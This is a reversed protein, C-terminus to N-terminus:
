WGNVRSKRKSLTVVGNSFNTKLHRVDVGSKEIHMIVPMTVEAEKEDKGFVKSGADALFDFFGM